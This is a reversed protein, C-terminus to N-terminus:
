VQEILNDDKYIDAGLKQEMEELMRIIRRNFREELYEAVHSGGHGDFISYM